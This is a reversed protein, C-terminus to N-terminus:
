KSVRLSRSNSQTPERKINLHLEVAVSKNLVPIRPGLDNTGGGPCLVSVRGEGETQWSNLYYRTKCSRQFDLLGQLAFVTVITVYNEGREIYKCPCMPTQISYTSLLLM